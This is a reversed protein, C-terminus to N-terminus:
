RLTEGKQLLGDDWGVAVASAADVVELSQVEFPGLKVPRRHAGRLVALAKAVDRGKAEILDATKHADPLGSSRPVAASDVIQAYREVSRDVRGFWRPDLSCFRAIAWPLRPLYPM